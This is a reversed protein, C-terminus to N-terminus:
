STVTLPCSGYHVKETWADQDCGDCSCPTCDCPVDDRYAVAWGDPYSESEDDEVVIVVYLGPTALIYRELGGGVYESPHMMAGNYSYQGTFGALFHWGDPTPGADVREHDVSEPAWTLRNNADFADTVTGDGHVRIVHDFDMRDNLTRTM